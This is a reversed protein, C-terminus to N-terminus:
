SVLVKSYISMYMKAHTGKHMRSTKGSNVVLFVYVHRSQTYLNSHVIHMYTVEANVALFVYSSHRQVHAKHM